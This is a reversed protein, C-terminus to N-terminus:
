VDGGGFNGFITTGANEKGAKKPVAVRGGSKMGSDGAPPSLVEEV